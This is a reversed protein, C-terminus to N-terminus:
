LPHIPTILMDKKKEPSINQGETSIKQAKSAQKSTECMSPWDPLALWLLRRGGRRREGVLRAFPPSHRVSSLFVVLVFGFPSPPSLFLFGM